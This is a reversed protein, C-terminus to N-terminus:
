PHYAYQLAGSGSAGAAFHGSAALAKDLAAGGGRVRVNFTVRAGSAEAVTVARVGPAAQLLRGVQAYDSLSAVNDVEVAVLMEAQPDSVDQVRALTDVAGGIGVALGGSWSQAIFNTYLTWQWVGNSGGTDSRGVLVADAGLRQGAAILADRGLDAGSADTVPLPVLSMPLGRTEAAADLERRAADAASGMPPPALVVLTFPRNSDWTSRGAASIAASLAAGDFVFHTAGETTTRSAVMYLAANSVIGALAPDSAAEGRGTARVLVRKLAEQVLAPSPAGRVDIEYVQVPRGAWASLPLFLCALWLLRTRFKLAHVDVITCV